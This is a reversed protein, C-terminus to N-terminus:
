SAQFWDRKVCKLLCKSHLLKLQRERKNNVRLNSIFDLMPMAHNRRYLIKAVFTALYAQNPSNSNAQNMSRAWSASVMGLACARAATHYSIFVNKVNLALHVLSIGKSINQISCHQTPRLLLESNKFKWVSKASCGM